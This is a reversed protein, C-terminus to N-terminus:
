SQGPPGIVWLGSSKRLIQAHRSDSADAWIRSETLFLGDFTRRVMVMVM